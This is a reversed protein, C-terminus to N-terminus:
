FNHYGVVLEAQGFFQPLHFDPSDSNISNWSLFHPIRTLDGCKYFNARFISGPEIGLLDLPIAVTLKWNFEAKEDPLNQKNLSPKRLIRELDCAALPERKQKNGFAAFCYGLANFEFNRYVATEGPSSDAASIFFEVCSDEWVAEQDALAKARFFDREVEYYLWLYLKSYGAWLKAVPNYSYEPWNIKDISLISGEKKLMSGIAQNDLLLPDGVYPILLEEIASRTM